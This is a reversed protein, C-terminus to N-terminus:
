SVVEGGVIVHRIALTQRDWVVLDGYKGTELHGVQKEIGIAAAPNWTAMLIAEAFKAAQWNVVNVVAESLNISSGVLGGGSTGVQAADTVLIVKGAGKVKVVLKILAPEVHKGDCILSCSVREDLLAAVVAGAARQHIPAMANFTHTILRIGRDFARSAEELTANSHGLSVAINHERLFDITVGSPDLEPAITILRVADDAIKRLIELNLPQIFQPPHVGPKAPSLCPGEVHIGPMRVRPRSALQTKSQAASKTAKTQALAVNELVGVGVSKLFQINKRIHDLDATILTPLICTVGAKLLDDSLAFIDEATPDGWFNCRPGGNLQIDVLGPTVYCGTVDLVRKAPVEEGAHDSIAAIRGDVISLNSFRTELPTILTGGVLAISSM